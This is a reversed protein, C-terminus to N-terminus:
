DEVGLLKLVATVERLNADVFAVNDSPTGAPVRRMAGSEIFGHALRAAILALAFRAYEDADLDAAFLAGSLLPSQELRAALAITAEVADGSVAIDHTFLPDRAFEPDDRTAAAILRSAHVFREFVPTTLRYAKLAEANGAAQPVATGPVVLLLAM